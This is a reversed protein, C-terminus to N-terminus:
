IVQCNATLDQQVVVEINILTTESHRVLHRIKHFFPANFISSGDIHLRLQWSWCGGRGVRFEIEVITGCSVNKSSWCGEACSIILTLTQKVFLTHDAWVVILKKYIWISAISVSYSCYICKIKLIAEFFVFGAIREGCWPWGITQGQWRGSQPACSCSM